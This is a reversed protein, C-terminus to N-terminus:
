LIIDEDFTESPVLRLFEVAIGNAFHRVVKGPTSGVVIRTGISPRKEIAIGAGSVSIDIIQAQQAEGGALQLSTDTVHPIIRGHRRDEMAGDGRNVLWTLLDAVRDRKAAPLALKLAFGDGTQRVIVGEVRGFHELYAVVRETVRGQASTLLRVGGPSMDLATCDAEEKNELM